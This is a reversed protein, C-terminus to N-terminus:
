PFYPEYDPNHKGFAASIACGLLFITWQLKPRKGLALASVSIVYGVISLVLEEEESMGTVSCRLIAMVTLCAAGAGIFVLVPRTKEWRRKRCFARQEPTKERRKILFRNVSYRTDYGRMM